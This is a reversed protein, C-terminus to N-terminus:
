PAPRECAKLAVHQAPQAPTAPSSVMGVQPAHIAVPQALAPASTVQQVSRATPVAPDLQVAEDLGARQASPARPLRKKQLIKINGWLANSATRPPQTRLPAELVTPPSPAALMRVQLSPCFLSAMPASIARLNLSYSSYRPHKHQFNCGGPHHNCWLWLYGAFFYSFLL